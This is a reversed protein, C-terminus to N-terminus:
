NEKNSEMIWELIDFRRNKHYGLFDLGDFGRNIKNERFISCAEICDGIITKTIQSAHFDDKTTSMLMYNPIRTSVRINLKNKVALALSVPPISLSEFGIKDILRKSVGHPGHSPIAYGIRNYIGLELNLQRRFALLTKAMNSSQDCTSPYCDTLGMDIGGLSVDSIIENINDSIDGAMDGDVFIFSAAGSAYAFFAGISRPVDLGLPKNFYLIEIKDNNIHSVKKLTNDTSGNVLVLIKDTNTKLLMNLTKDIKEEENRAPVITYIM